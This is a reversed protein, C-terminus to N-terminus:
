AGSLRILDNGSVGLLAHYAESICIFGETTASRSRDDSRGYSRISETISHGAQLTLYPQLHALEDSTSIFRRTIYGWILRIDSITYPVGFYKKTWLRLIRTLDTPALVKDCTFYMYNEALYTIEEHPITTLKMHKTIWIDLPRLILLILLTVYSLRRCQSRVVTTSLSLNNLAATSGAYFLGLQEDAKWCWNRFGDETNTFTEKCQVEGTAVPGRMLHCCAFLLEIIEGIQDSLTIWKGSVYHEQGEAPFETYSPDRLLKKIALTSFDKLLPSTFISYGLTKNNPDDVVSKLIESSPLQKEKIGIVTFVDLVRNELTALMAQEMTALGNLDLKRGRLEFTTGANGCPLIQPRPPSHHTTSSALTIVTQAWALATGPSGTIVLRLLSQGSKFLTTSSTAHLLGHSIVMEHFVCLKVCWKFAFLPTPISGVSKFTSHETFNLLIFFLVVPHQSEPSSDIPSGILGFLIQHILPIITDDDPHTVLSSPDDGVLERHRRHSDANTFMKAPAPVTADQELEEDDEDDTGDADLANIQDFAGTTTSRLLATELSTATSVLNSSLQFPPQAMAASKIIFYVLRALLRAVQVHLGRSLAKFPKDLIPM